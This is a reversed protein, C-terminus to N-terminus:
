RFEQELPVPELNSANNSEQVDSSWFATLFLIFVIMSLIFAMVSSASCVASFEFIHYAFGYLKFICFLFNKSPEKLHYYYKYDSERTKPRNFFNFYRKCKWLKLYLHVDPKKKLSTHIYGDSM